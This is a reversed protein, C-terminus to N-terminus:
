EKGKTSTPPISGGDSTGSQLEKKAATLKSMEGDAVQLINVISGEGANVTPSQPDPQKTLTQYSENAKIALAAASEFQRTAEELDYIDTNGDKKEHEEHLKNLVKFKLQHIRLANQRIVAAIKKTNEPTALREIEAATYGPIAARKNGKMRGSQKDRFDPDHLHCYPKGDMASKKCQLPKKGQSTLHSCRSRGSATLAVISVPNDKKRSRSKKNQTTKAM